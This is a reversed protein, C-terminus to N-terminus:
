LSVLINAYGGNELVALNLLPLVAVLARLNLRGDAFVDKVKYRPGVVGARAKRVADQVVIFSMGILLFSHNPFKVATRGIRCFPIDYTWRTECDYIFPRSAEGSAVVMGGARAYFAWGDLVVQSPDIQLANKRLEAFPSAGLLPASFAPWHIIRPAAAGPQSGNVSISAALLLTWM